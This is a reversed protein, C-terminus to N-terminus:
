ERASQNLSTDGEEGKQFSSLRAQGMLWRVLETRKMPPIWANQLKEFREIDDPDSLTITITM